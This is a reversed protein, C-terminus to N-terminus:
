QYCNRNARGTLRLLMLRDDPSLDRVRLNPIHALARGLAIVREARSPDVLSQPNSQDLCAFIADLAEVTTSVVLQAGSQAARMDLRCLAALTGADATGVELEGGIGFTRDAM